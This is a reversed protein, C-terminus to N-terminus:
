RILRPIHILGLRYALHFTVPQNGRSADIIGVLVHTSSSTHLHSNKLNPFTRLRLIFIVRLSLKTLPARRMYSLTSEHFMDKTLVVKLSCWFETMTLILVLLRDNCCLSTGRYCLRYMSRARRGVSCTEIRPLTLLNKRYELVTCECVVTSRPLHHNPPPLAVSAHLKDDCHLASSSPAHLKDGGDLASSSFSQLQVGGGM